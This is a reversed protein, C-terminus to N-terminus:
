NDNSDYRRPTLPSFRYDKLLMEILEKTKAESLGAFQFLGPTLAVALRKIDGRLINIRDLIIDALIAAFNFNRRRGNAWQRGDYPVRLVPAVPVAHLGLLSTRSPDDSEDKGVSKTCSNCRRALLNM